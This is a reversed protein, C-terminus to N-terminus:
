THRNMELLIRNYLNELRTIEVRMGEITENYLRLQLMRFEETIDPNNAINVREGRLIVIDGKLSDILSPILDLRDANNQCDNLLENSQQEYNM